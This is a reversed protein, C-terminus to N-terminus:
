SKIWFKSCKNKMEASTVRHRNTRGRPQSPDKDNRKIKLDHFTSAADEWTPLSGSILSVAFMYRPDGM